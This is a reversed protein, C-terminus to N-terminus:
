KVVKVSFEGIYTKDGAVHDQATKAGYLKVDINGAKITSPLTWSQSWAKGPLSTGYGSKWGNGVADLSVYFMGSATGAITFTDGPKYSGYGPSTLNVTMDGNSIVRGNDDYTSVSSSPVDPTEVIATFTHFLDGLSDNDYNWIQVKIRPTTVTNATKCSWTVGKKIAVYCTQIHTNKIDDTIMVKIKSTNEATGSITVLGGTVRNHFDQSNLTPSTVRVYASGGAEDSSSNDTTNTQKDPTTTTEKVPTKKDDTSKPTETKKDKDSTSAAGCYLAQMKAKTAADFVGPTYQGATLNYSQFRRIGTETAAGFYTTENGFAGNGSRALPSYRTDQQAILNLSQQLAKVEASESDLRLTSNITKVYTCISANYRETPLANPTPTPVVSKNDTTSDTTNLLTMLYLMIEYLAKTPNNGSRNAEAQFIEKLETQNATTLAAQVPAVPVTSMVLAALLALVPLNKSIKKM